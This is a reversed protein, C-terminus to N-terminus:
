ATQDDHSALYEALVDVSTLRQLILSGDAEITARALVANGEWLVSRHTLYTETFCVCSHTDTGFSIDVFAMPQGRKTKHDKVRTLEGGITVTSGPEVRELEDPTFARRAILEKHEDSANASLAFGIFEREMRARTKDSWTLTVPGEEKTFTHEFEVGDKREGLEDFAGCKLLAQRVRSNCKAALGADTVRKEFEAYSEFPEGDERLKAIVSISSDSVFKVAELGFRIAEGDIAFARESTNIDPPLVVVDRAQAERVARAVEDTEITMCAAYFHKPFHVKLWMDQYAEAGYGGAHAKNFSYRTFFMYQTLVEEAVEKSHGEAVVRKVWEERMAELANRGANDSVKASSLKTLTRRILDAESPSYGALLQAVEIAQEQYVMIGYTEELAPRVADAWYEEPARGNKRDGYQFATGSELPGPRYLANAAVLDNFNTPKIQKLLGSIGSGAFQFVGFNGGRGFPEMVEQEVAMPDWTFPLDDIAPREGTEKEISDLAHAQLTLGDIGLFDIKLFGYKSIIPFDAQESWATVISGDNGRQTPMYDTVPQDTIVVGAAHKSLRAVQGELRLAHKWVEPYKAAFNELVGGLDHIDQLDYDGSGDDLNKTVETYEEYPVDFARSVAGLVARPAFTGHSIIDAVHDTGWVDGAHAKAFKRKDHQFDLDVDPMDSRAPNMFREFKLRHGIPDLGTVDINYLVDSGAASGRGPGVRIGNAKAWRVVEGIVVFYSLVGKSRFIDLEYECQKQHVELPFEYGHSARIRTNRAFGERLWGRLIKEAFREADNAWKVDVPLEEEMAGPEIERAKAETVRPMKPSKDVLFPEIKAAVRETGAIADTVVEAPLQPHNDAFTQKLEDESMLYLTGLKGAGFDDYVDEGKGEAKLLEIKKAKEEAKQKFSSATSILWVVEHTDHWDQTPYHADVTAVVDLGERAAFSVVELNSQRQDDFDHPMIEVHLDDGFRKRMKTLWSKLKKDEGGRIINYPLFGSVCATMVILGDGYRDLTDYDCCPKGYFGKSWADSTIRLLNHWGELNKALLTMHYYEKLVVKDERINRDERFYAEVGVIPMIGQKECAVIHHLAGSMTAHDTLALAPQGLDHAVQAYQEATGTGDLLSHESHRHLHILGM